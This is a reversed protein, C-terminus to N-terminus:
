LADEVKSTDERLHEPQWALIDTDDGLKNAGTEAALQPWPCMAREGDRGRALQALRDFKDDAALHHELANTMTRAGLLTHPETGGFVPLKNRELVVVDVM